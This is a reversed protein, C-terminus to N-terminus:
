GFGLWLKAIDNCIVLIYPYNRLCYQVSNGAVPSFPHKMTIDSLSKLFSLM